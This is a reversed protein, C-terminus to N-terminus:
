SDRPSPSTYLLCTGDEILVEMLDCIEDFRGDSEELREGLIRHIDKGSGALQDEVTKVYDLSRMFTIKSTNNDPNVLFFYTNDGAIDNKYGIVKYGDFRKCLLTSPENQIKLQSGDDGEITANLAFSYESPSLDQPHKDRNMGSDPVAINSNNQM